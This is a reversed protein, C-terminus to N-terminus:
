GSDKFTFGSHRVDGTPPVKDLTQIDGSPHADSVPSTPKLELSAVSQEDTTSKQESEIPPFDLSSVSQSDGDQQPSEDRFDSTKNHRLELSSTSHVDPEKVAAGSQLKWGTFELSNSSNSQTMGLVTFTKGNVAASPTHKEESLSEFHEDESYPMSLSSIAGALNGDRPYAPYVAFDDFDDDEDPLDPPHFDLPSIGIGVPTVTSDNVQGFFSRVQDAAINGHRMKNTQKVETTQKSSGPFSTRDDSSPPRQSDGFMGGKDLNSASEFEAWGDVGKSLNYGGSCVDAGQLPGAHGSVLTSSHGQDTQSFIRGEGSSSFSAWEGDEGVRVEARADLPVRADLGNGSLSASQGNLLVGPSKSAFGSSEVVHPRVTAFDRASEAGSKMQSSFSSFDDVDQTRTGFYVDAASHSQFLNVSNDSFTSVRSTPIDSASADSFSAFDAFELDATDAPATVDTVASTTQIELANAAAVDTETLLM